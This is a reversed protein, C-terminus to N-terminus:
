ILAHSHQFDLITTAESTVTFNENFLTGDIKRTYCCAMFISFLNHEFYTSQIRDQEKNKYNASCDVHIIFENTKHNEKLRNCHTNQTRKVFVHAKLIKVQESFLEDEVDASNVVKKVKLRSSSFIECLTAM